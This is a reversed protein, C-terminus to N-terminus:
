SQFNPYRYNKVTLFATKLHLNDTEHAYNNGWGILTTDFNEYKELEFNSQDPLCIPRLHPLFQIPAVKLVAIDFYATMNYMPHIFIMQIQFTEERENNM